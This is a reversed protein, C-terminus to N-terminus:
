FKIAAFWDILRTVVTDLFSLKFVLGVLAVGVIVLLFLIAVILDFISLGKKGADHGIFMFWLGCLLLLAASVALYGIQQVTTLVRVGGEEAGFHNLYVNVFLLNAIALLLWLIWLFHWWKRM